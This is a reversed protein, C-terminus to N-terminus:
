STKPRSKGRLRAKSDANTRKLIQKENYGYSHASKGAEKPLPQAALTLLEIFKKKSM